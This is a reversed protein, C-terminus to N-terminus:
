IVTWISIEKYIENFPKWNSINESQKSEIIGKFLEGIIGHVSLSWFIPIPLTLEHNFYETLQNWFKSCNLHVLLVM